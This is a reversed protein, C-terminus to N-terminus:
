QTLSINVDQCSGRGNYRIASRGNANVIVLSQLGGERNQHMIM